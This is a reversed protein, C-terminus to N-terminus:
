WWLTKGHERDVSFGLFVVDIFTAVVELGANL